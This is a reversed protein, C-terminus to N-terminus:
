FRSRQIIRVGDFQRVVFDSPEAVLSQLASDFVDARFGLEIRVKDIQVHGGRLRLDPHGRLALLCRNVMEERTEFSFMAEAAKWAAASGGHTAWETGGPKEILLCSFDKGSPVNRRCEDSFGVPSFIGVYQYDRRTGTIDKVCAELDPYQTRDSCAAATLFAELPSICQGVVSVQPKFGSFLGSQGADIRIGPDLPMTRMVTRDMLDHKVMLDKIKRRSDWREPQRDAPFVCPKATVPNVVNGAEAVKKILRNIFDEEMARAEERALPAAGPKENGTGHGSEREAEDM